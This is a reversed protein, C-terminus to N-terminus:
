IHFSNSVRVESGVRGVLNPGSGIESVFRPGSGIRGVFSANKQFSASVRVGSGIRGVLRTRVRVSGRRPCKLVQLLPCAICAHDHKSVTTTM